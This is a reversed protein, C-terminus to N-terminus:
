FAYTLKVRFSRGDQEITNQTHEEGGPDRYKKDFLNYVSGSLELGKLFRQSFLTLNTVFFDDVYRGKLTKRKSTYQVEMGAFLKDQYLPVILNGKALHKPSNLLTKGTRDNEVKQFTYSVRGSIGNGWKGDLAFILGKGNVQDVNKYVLLGDDPDIEQSILNEVKYFFGEISGRLYDSLFHEVIFEYNRMTEADLDPNPKISTGDHSYLEYVNPARFATGYLFKLTTKEFPSYILAIRPNTTEGFTDYYDYRIGANLILNKFIRFEDQIFVAWNDSKRKDANYLVFPDEDYNRQNQKANLHYEAGLVINHNGMFTKNVLVEADWWKGEGSDKNIIGAYVYDGHFKYQSYSLRALLTMAKAFIHEYKLNIFSSEDVTRNRPDDFDTWYSATPIGKTRKIYAGELTFDRYSLKSFFSYNRDYDCDEAIGNNTSPDDFEKFFLDQGNNDYLSSSFALEMGNRFSNGYSFRSKYTDFSGIEGSIEPSGLDSGKRTIINIVAFMANSGYLSFNSGRIVEIKDILDIDIIFGTEIGVSGYINDNIKQGDVLILIRSNWDGLRLFGRIGAYAYNRDYSIYFDPLSSLIDGLTRYGYKKIEEATVINISGPTENIRQAFRSAGYVPIEILDEINMEPSDTSADYGNALFPVLCICICIFFVLRTKKIMVKDIM